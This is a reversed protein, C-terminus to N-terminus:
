LVKSLFAATRPNSPASFIQGPKGEEQIVGQDIFIVRDAVERAFGMEHTVIVMTMGESALNKMVELVDGVLEPDLASTPEDFLMISPKMALARAIAVRQQQGGSLSSPWADRKDSLGVKALLADALDVAQQRPMNRLNMPAMILNELVTMHPFLNFRQFVMGVSERMKNLDTTQDHAAFGNVVVEGESVTELANMCRLFTSKGSGSPGIICVVEQPKIDCSIGRLVHSDGFRKHLNNIHIM